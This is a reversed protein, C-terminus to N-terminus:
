YLSSSLVSSHNPIRTEPLGGGDVTHLLPILSHSWLERGGPFSGLLYRFTLSSVSKGSFSSLPHNIDQTHTHSDTERHAWDSWDHGVRQSGTSQLGGSEEIWPIRWALISSHIALGKELPDKEQMPPLNKVVQAMLSTGLSLMNFLCLLLWTCPGLLLAMAGDLVREASVPASNVALGSFAELVQM